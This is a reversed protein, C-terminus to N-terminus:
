VGNFFPKINCDLPACKSFIAAASRAAFNSEVKKKLLAERPM